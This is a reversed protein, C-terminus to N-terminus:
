QPEPGAFGSGRALSPSWDGERVGRDGDYTAVVRPSTAPTHPCLSRRLGWGRLPPEASGQASSSTAAPRAASSPRSAGSRSRILGSRLAPLGEPHDLPRGLELGPGAFATVAADGDHIMGQDTRTRDVLHPARPRSCSHRRQVYPNQLPNLDVARGYAHESWSTSAPPAAATSRARTTPTWRRRTAGASSTSRSWASSRTARRRVARAAGRRRGDAQDAHSSSGARASRATTTGTRDRRRCSAARGARPCGDRWSAHLEETTVEEIGSTFARTSTAVTSSSATPSSTTTDLEHRHGAPDDDSACAALALLWPPPWRSTSRRRSM